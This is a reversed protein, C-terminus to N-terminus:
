MRLRSLAIVRKRRVVGRSVYNIQIAARPLPLNNDLPAHTRPLTRSKSVRHGVALSYQSLFLHLFIIPAILAIPYEFELSDHILNSRRILQWNRDKIM